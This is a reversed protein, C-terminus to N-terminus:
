LLYLRTLILVVFFVGIAGFLSFLIGLNDKETYGVDKELLVLVMGSFTLAM